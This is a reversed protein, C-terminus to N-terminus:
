VSLPHPPSPTRRVSVSHQRKVDVSVREQLHDLPLGDIAVFEPYVDILYEVAPAAQLVFLASLNENQQVRM